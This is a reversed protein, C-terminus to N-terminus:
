PPPVYREVPGSATESVQLRLGPVIGVVRADVSVTVETPTRSVTVTRQPLLRSALASLYDEARAQGAAATSQYARATRAGEQAAAQAVHRAHWWLAVQFVTMTLLLLLPFIIAAEM